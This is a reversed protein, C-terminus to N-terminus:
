AGDLTVQIKDGEEGSNRQMVLLMLLAAAIIGIGLIIDKKKM